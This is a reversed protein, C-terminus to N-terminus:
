AAFYFGLWYMIGAGLAMLIVQSVFHGFGAEEQTEPLLDSLSLYLFNGAIMALIYPEARDLVHGFLYTVFAGLITTCSIAFSVLLAKRRLYGGKTLASFDAIAHPIEHFLIAITTAVGLAPAVLFALTVAIGDIFNHIIGGFFILYTYPQLQWDSEDAHYWRFFWEISFFVFIGAIVWFLARDVGAARIAEPLIDFFTVGLLAGISFGLLRHTIDKFFRGSAIVMYAGLFSLASELISAAIITVLLM